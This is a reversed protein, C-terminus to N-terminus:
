EFTNNRPRTRRRRNSTTTRRRRQQARFLGRYKWFFDYCQVMRRRRGEDTVVPHIAIVRRVENAEFAKDQKKRGSIIAAIEIQERRDEIIQSVLTAAKKPDLASPLADFELEDASLSLPVAIVAALLFRLLTRMVGQQVCPVPPPYLRKKM